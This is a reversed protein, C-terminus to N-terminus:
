TCNSFEAKSKLMLMDFNKNLFSIQIIINCSKVFKPHIKKMIEPQFAPECYLENNSSLFWKHIILGLGETEARTSSPLLKRTEPLEWADGPAARKEQTAVGEM